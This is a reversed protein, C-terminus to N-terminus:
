AIFVGRETIVYEAKIEHGFIFSKSGIRKMLFRCHVYPSTYRYGDPENKMSIIGNSALIMAGTKLAYISLLRSVLSLEHRIKAEYFPMSLGDWLVLGYHGLALAKSLKEFLLIPETFKLVDIRNLGEAKGKMITLVLSPNFRLRSDVYLVRLGEVSGHAASTMLVASKGVGPEGYIEIFCGKCRKSFFVLPSEM